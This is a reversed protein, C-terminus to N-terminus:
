VIFVCRNARFSFVRVRMTPRQVHVCGGDVARGMSRARAVEEPALAEGVMGPATSLYNAGEGWAAGLRGPPPPPREGDERGAAVM